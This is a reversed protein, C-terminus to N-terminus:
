CVFYNQFIKEPSIMIRASNKAHAMMHFSRHECDPENTQVHLPSYSQRNGLIKRNEELEDTGMYQQPIKWDYVCDIFKKTKYVAFGNFASRCALYTNAPIEDLKQIIYSRMIEVVERPREWGWCSYVFPTISLAWLDYYGNRNFSVSDWADSNKLARMFVNLDMCSSCVDDMDMMVFYKWEEICCDAAIKERITKLILNRANSINETRISSLRSRNVIIDMKEGLEEKFRTLKFMSDDHSEDYAVIVRFDSFLAVLSKINCFVSDLHPGCNRVTGCLFIKKSSFM